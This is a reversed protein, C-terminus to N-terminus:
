STFHHVCFSSRFHRGCKQLSCKKSEKFSTSPYGIVRPGLFTTHKLHSLLKSTTIRYKLGFVQGLFGWYFMFINRWWTLSKILPFNDFNMVKANMPKTETCRRQWYNSESYLHSLEAWAWSCRLLLIKLSVGTILLPEEAIERRTCVLLFVRSVWVLKM